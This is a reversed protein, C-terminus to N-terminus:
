PNIRYGRLHVSKGPLNSVARAGPDVRRALADMTSLALLGAPAQVMVLYGGKILDQVREVKVRPDYKGKIEVRYPTVALSVNEEVVEFKTIVSKM